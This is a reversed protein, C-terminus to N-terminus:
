AAIREPHVAAVRVVRTRLDREPQIEEATGRVMWVLGAVLALGVGVLGPGVAIVATAIGPMWMTDIMPVM